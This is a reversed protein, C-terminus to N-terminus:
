NGESGDMREKMTGFRFIKGPGLAMVYNADADSDSV